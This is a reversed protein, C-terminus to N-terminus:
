EQTSRIECGPLNPNRTGGRAAANALSQLLEKVERRDRFHNYLVDQEIIHARWVTRLSHTRGGLFGRVQARQPVAAAAQRAQELEQTAELAVIVQAIANPGGAKAQEALQDVRRQAEAVKREEAAAAAKRRDDKLKIWARFRRRIAKLCVELRDLRPHFKARIEALKEEHPAKEEKFKETCAKHEDELQKLCDAAQRGVEEDEILPYQAIWEDANAILDAIRKDEAAAPEAPESEVPEPPSNHLRTINHAEM